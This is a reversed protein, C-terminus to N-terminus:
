ETFLYIFLYTSYSILLLYYLLQNGSSIYDVVRQYVHGTAHPIHTVQVSQVNKPMCFVSGLIYEITKYGQSLPLSLICAM